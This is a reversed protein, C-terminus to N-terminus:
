LWRLLYYNVAKQGTIDLLELWWAGSVSAGGCSWPSRSSTPPRGGAVKLLVPLYVFFIYAFLELPLSWYFQFWLNACAGVFYHEISMVQGMSSLIQLTNGTITGCCGSSTSMVWTYTRGPSSDSWPWPASPRYTGWWRWVTQGSAQKLVRGWVCSVGPADGWIPHM